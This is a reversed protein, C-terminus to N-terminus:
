QCISRFNGNAKEDDDAVIVAYSDPSVQNSDDLTIYAYYNRNGVYGGYSNKANVLGCVYGNKEGFSRYSSSTFKASDPDKLHGRALVEGHNIMDEGSPKCGVVVFISLLVILYKVM